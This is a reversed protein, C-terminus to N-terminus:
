RERNIWNNLTLYLSKKGKLYKPENYMSMLMDQIRVKQEGKKNNIDSIKSMLICFQKYTLQSKINLVGTLEENIENNGYLFDVFKFYRDKYKGDAKEKEDTYFIKVSNKKGDVIVDENVDEDEMHKVYSKSIKKKKKGKRNLSRSESYARRKEFEDNLRTNFYNGDKNITFKNFIDEDYTKCINLMDKKSLNGKQHQLCLLRIYKGVQENSMLFTGSLFDNSYFLFAPDKSM